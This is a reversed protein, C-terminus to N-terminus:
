EIRLTLSVEVMRGPVHVLVQRVRVRVIIRDLGQEALHVREADVDSHDGDGEIVFGTPSGDGFVAISEDSTERYIRISPHFSNAGQAPGDVLQPHDGRREKRAAADRLHRDVVFPGIRDIGAADIKTL